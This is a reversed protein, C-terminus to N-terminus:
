NETSSLQTGPSFPTQVDQTKECKMMEPQCWTLFCLNVTAWPFYLLHMWHQAKLITMLCLAWISSLNNCTNKKSCGEVDMPDGFSPSKMSLPKAPLPIRLSYHSFPCFFASSSQLLSINPCIHEMLAAPKGLGGRVDCWGQAEGARIATGRQSCWNAVSIRLQLKNGCWLSFLKQLLFAGKIKVFWAPHEHLEM